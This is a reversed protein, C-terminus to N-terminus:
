RIITFHYDMAPPDYSSGATNVFRVEVTNVSSVRASAIIFGANFSGDQSVAVASNTAANTVTFNQAITAGASVSPLNANVTTKIIETIPTGNTGLKTTGNIDLTASPTTTGIGVNGNNDIALRTINGGARFNISSDARFIIASRISTAENGSLIGTEKTNLHSLQIYSAQDSEFIAQSSSFFPGGSPANKVVHLLANPTVTNIGLKGTIDLAMKTFTSSFSSGYNFSLTPPAQNLGVIWQKSAPISKNRFSLSAEGISPNTNEIMLGEVYGGDGPDNSVVHLRFTPAKTGIGTNGNKLVTMANNRTFDNSGNGIMFIPDAPVWGLRSAATTDNNLGIVISAFSNAFLNEGVVLSSNAYATTSRGMSTSENGYSYNFLGMATSRLGYAYTSVGM